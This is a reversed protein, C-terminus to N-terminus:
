SAATAKRRSGRRYGYLGQVPGLLFYILGAFENNRPFAFALLISLTGVAATLLHRYIATQVDYLDLSGLGLIARRRYAHQYLLAFIGFLLVLATSYIVM